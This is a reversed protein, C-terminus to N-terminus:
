LVVQLWYTKKHSPLPTLSGTSNAGLVEIEVVMAERWKSDKVAQTYSKFEVHSSITNCFSKHSPSLKDYSLISSIHLLSLLPHLM